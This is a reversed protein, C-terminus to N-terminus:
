ERWTRDRPVGRRFSVSEGGLSHRRPVRVTPKICRSSSLCPKSKGPFPKVLRCRFDNKPYRGSNRIEQPSLSNRLRAWYTAPPLRLAGCKERPEAHSLMQQRAGNAAEDDAEGSEPGDAKGPIDDFLHEIPGSMASCGHCPRRRRRHSLRPQDVESVLPRVECTKGGEGRSGSRGVVSKGAALGERSGRGNDKLLTHRLLCNKRRTGGAFKSM